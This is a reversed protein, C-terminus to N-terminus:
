RGDFVADPEVVEWEETIEMVRHPGGPTRTLYPVICLDGDVVAYARGSGRMSVPRCWLATDNAAAAVADSMTYKPVTM